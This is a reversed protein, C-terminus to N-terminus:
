RGLRQLRRELADVLGRLRGIERRIEGAEGADGTIPMRSTRPTPGSSELTPVATPQPSPDGVLAQELPAELPQLVVDARRGAGGPLVFEVPIPRDVPGAAVIRTLDNPSRVPQDNLRVIVSGPPIGARSAPLDGVVGIVYAGSGDDLRFRARTDADLPVTRVGLATRGRVGTAPIATSAAPPLTAPAPSSVHGWTTAEQPRSPPPTAVSTSPAAAPRPPALVSAVPAAPSPSVQAAPEASAALPAPPLPSATRDRGPTVVPRPVAVVDVESVGDGRAIALRVRQGSAITTFAQAIEDANHPVVGNISTLDDGTTIGAAAAPGQPAVEVISWRGPVRSEAVTMGLWGNATTPGAASPPPTLSAAAPDATPALVSAPGPPTASPERIREAPRAFPLAIPDGISIDGPEFAPPDVPDTAFATLCACAAVVSAIGAVSRGGDM